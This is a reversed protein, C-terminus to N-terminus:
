LFHAVSGEDSDEDPKELLMSELIAGATQLFLSLLEVRSYSGLIGISAIIKAKEAPGLTRDLLLLKADDLVTQECDTLM